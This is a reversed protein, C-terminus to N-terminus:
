VSAKPIICHYNIVSCLGKNLLVVRRRMSVFTLYAASLASSQELRGCSSFLQTFKNLYNCDDAPHASFHAKLASREYLQGKTKLKGNKHCPLLWVYYHFVTLHLPWLWGDLAISCLLIAIYQYQSIIAINLFNFVSITNISFIYLLITFLGTLVPVCYTTTYCRLPGSKSM